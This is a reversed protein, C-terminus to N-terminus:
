ALTREKMTIEHPTLESSLHESLPIGIHYIFQHPLLDLVISMLRVVSHDMCSPARWKPM